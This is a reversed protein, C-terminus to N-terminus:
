SLFRVGRGVGKYYFITPIRVNRSISRGEAKDSLKVIFVSGFKQECVSKIQNTLDDNTEAPSSVEVGRLDFAGKELSSDGCAIEWQRLSISFPLHRFTHSFPLTLYFSLFLSFSFYFCLLRVLRLHTNAMIFTCPPSVTSSPGCRSRTPSISTLERSAGSRGKRFTSLM